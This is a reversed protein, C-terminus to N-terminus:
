VDVLIPRSIPAGDPEITALHAFNREGMLDAVLPPIEAVPDGWGAPM